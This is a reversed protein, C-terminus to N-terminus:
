VAEKLANIELLLADVKASLEQIAKIAPVLLDGQKLEYKDPNSDLILDNLAAETETSKAAIVEQSIFGMVTAAQEKSGDPTTATRVGDDDETFYHERIDWNFSVPNLKNIFSLGATLPTINAKDRQDSLATISTVQCRLSTVATSGLTIENSVTPSSALSYYGILTNNSGSTKGSGASKGVMTNNDATGAVAYGAYYGTFTNGTGTVAHNGAGRGIFVNESGTTLAAGSYSGMIVNHEGSTIEYGTNQGIAVNDTGTTVGLGM